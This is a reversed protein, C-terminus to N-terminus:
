SRSVVLDEETGDISAHAPLDHDGVITLGGLALWIGDLKGMGAPDAVVVADRPCLFAAFVDDAQQQISVHRHTFPDGGHEICRAFQIFGDLAIPRDFLQLQVAGHIYGFRGRQIQAHTRAGM